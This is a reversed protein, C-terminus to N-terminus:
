HEPGSLASQPPTPVTVGATIDVRFYLAKALRQKACIVNYTFCIAVAINNIDTRKSISRLQDEDEYGELSNDLGVGSYRTAPVAFLYGPM